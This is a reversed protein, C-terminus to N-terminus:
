NYVDVDAISWIEPLNPGHYEIGLCERTRSKIGEELLSDTVGSPTLVNLSSLLIGVARSFKSPEQKQDIVEVYVRKRALGVGVTLETPGAGVILVRMAQGAKFKM